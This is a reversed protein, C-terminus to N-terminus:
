HLPLYYNGHIEQLNKVNTIHSTKPMIISNNITSGSAINVGKLIISNSIYSGEGLSCEDFCISREITCDKDVHCNNGLVAWDMIALCDKIETSSGHVISGSSTSAERNFTSVNKIDCNVNWINSISKSGLTFLHAHSEMYDRPTGIEKWFGSSKFGFIPEKNRIAPLYFDKIIDCFGDKTIYKFIEPELIQIGCFMWKGLEDSGKVEGNGIKVIRDQSDLLIPTYSKKLPRPIVIMTALAGKASHFALAKEIELNFLIDGNVVIFTNKGLLAQVKKLAGATGLISPEYSFEISTSTEHYKNMEHEISSPLYHLNIIIDEVGKKKLFSLNYFLLPINLLPMVAKARFFTLPRLRTGFGAALIVVKV